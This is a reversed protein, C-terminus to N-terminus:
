SRFPIRFHKPSINVCRVRTYIDAEFLKAHAALQLFRSETTKRANPGLKRKHARDPTSSSHGRQVRGHWPSRRGSSGRGAACCGCSPPPHLSGPSGGRCSCISRNWGNDLVSIVFIYTGIYRDTEEKGSKIM